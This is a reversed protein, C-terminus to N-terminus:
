ENYEEAERRTIFFHIGRSCENWRDEDFDPVSVTKGVRYGFSPIRDSSVETKESKSGDKNEIALVKAESCRCKRSYASSRKGTILLKVILGNAKKWGIFYGEEPCINPYFKIKIAEEIKAGRLYAGSLDAGSLYARSLDAGRLYAWSLDAGSLEAGSLDAGSLDAREGGHERRLWKSHKELVEKLAEKSITRM